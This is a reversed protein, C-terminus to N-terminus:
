EIVEVYKVAKRVASRAHGTASSESEFVLYGGGEYENVWIVRPERPKIRYDFSAWDWAPHIIEEWDSKGSNAYEIVEGAEHAQMVAIKEATTSM